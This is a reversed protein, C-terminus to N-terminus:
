GIIQMLVQQMQPTYIMHEEVKKRLCNPEREKKRYHMKIHNNRTIGKLYNIPIKQHAQFHIVEEELGSIVCSQSIDPCSGTLSVSGWLGLSNLGQSM